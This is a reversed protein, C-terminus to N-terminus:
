PINNCDEGTEDPIAVAGEVKVFAQDPALRELISAVKAFKGHKVLHTM